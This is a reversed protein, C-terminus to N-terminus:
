NSRQLNLQLSKSFWKAVPLQNCYDPLRNGSLLFEKIFPKQSFNM